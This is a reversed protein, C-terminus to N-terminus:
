IEQQAFFKKLDKFYELKKFKGDLIIHSNVDNSYETEWELFTTKDETVSSIRIRQYMSSFQLPQNASVLEYAIVSRKGDVLETIRFTWISKDLYTIEFISNIQSPGGVTFKVSSVHSPFLKGLNFELFQDWVLEKPVPIVCSEVQDCAVLTNMSQTTSKM